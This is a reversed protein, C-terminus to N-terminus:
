SLDERLCTAIRAIVDEKSYPGEKWELETSKVWVGFPNKENHCNGCFETTRFFDNTVIKHAPSEVTPTRGGEGRAAAAVPARPFPPPNM